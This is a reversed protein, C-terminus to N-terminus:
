RRRKLILAKLILARPHIQLLAPWTPHLSSDCGGPVVCPLRTGDSRAPQPGPASRPPPLLPHRALELPLHHYAPPATLNAPRPPDRESHPTGPNPDVVHALPRHGRDVSPLEREVLRPRRRHQLPNDAAPLQPRREVGRDNAGGLVHHDDDARRHILEQ